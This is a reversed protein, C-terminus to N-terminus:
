YKNMFGALIGRGGHMPAQKTACSLFAPMCAGAGVQVAASDYM